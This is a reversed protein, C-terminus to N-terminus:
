CNPLKIIDEQTEINDVRANEDIRRLLNKLVKGPGIEFFQGVGEKIMFECSDQWLVPSSVQRVLYEKIQRIDKYPRAEVNSVVPKEPLNIKINALEKELKIGAGKMFKSHFAGSVELDITRKAGKEIALKKAKEVEALSGSIVIQGPSNINAVEAGSDRAVEETLARSLGLISAMKGPNEQAAEQMFQGRRRILILAEEFSIAGSAVLATYEGLSLGALFDAEYRGKEKFVELTAISVTFIAVQCTDTKKFLEEPGEFCLKTLEFNLIRDAKEFIKKASPSNDYLDKGMGVYQAGQGPFIFATKNIM